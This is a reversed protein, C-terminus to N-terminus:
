KIEDSKIYHYLKTDISQEMVMNMHVVPKKNDDKMVTQEVSNKDPSAKGLYYFDSGEDDDKKVFIHVDINNEKAYIIKNVEDSGLTRNSRTYWKLVDQNIFEDAYDVSSEVEDNKHYTIFIPCTKYKTKYGYITSSEDSIWNLLKCADKRTYKEYLTLPKDCEYLKSKEKGSQIIDIIMNKFFKNSHLSKSLAENFIFYKDETLIIIPKEGYKAKYTQTFFSLEFIRLVSAITADDIQCKSEKLHNLYEYYEVKEKHLLLDLLIIEHKRKGSLVELSLMTLAKNEYESLIPIEERIKLLFQYYNSFKNVIVVPDISHNTVFDYLYPVRGIRNKLEVFAEKLKKTETLNSNNIARFIYEKAIEEFNVTSIGKIYSTDKIHRRINDKNQSKDGSLAIPILYNNKYNGIFDIITVFEKSDHKRLGRGLQQIFIISSQTQRLMVVQNVTPIDIGENFIDVTIIYDLIGHELRNVQLLREEQSHDGTLPVTNYGKKNM